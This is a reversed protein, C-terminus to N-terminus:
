KCIDQSAYPSIDPIACGRHYSERKKPQRRSAKERLLFDSRLQFTFTPHTSLKRHSDFCALLRGLFNRNYVFFTWFRPADSVAPMRGVFSNTDNQSKGQSLDGCSPQSNAYKMDDVQENAITPVITVTSSYSTETIPPPKTKKTRLPHAHPEM